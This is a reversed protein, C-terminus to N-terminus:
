HNFQEIGLLESLLSARFNAIEWFYRSFKVTILLDRFRQFFRGEITVVMWFFLGCVCSSTNRPVISIVSLALQASSIHYIVRNGFAIVM